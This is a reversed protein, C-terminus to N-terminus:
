IALAQKECFIKEIKGSSFKVISKASAQTDVLYGEVFATHCSVVSSLICDSIKLDNIDIAINIVFKYGGEVVRAGWKKCCGCSM